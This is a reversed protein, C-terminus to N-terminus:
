QPKEERLYHVFLRVQEPEELMEALMNMGRGSARRGFLPQLIYVVQAGLVTLPGAAELLSAVFGDLGWRHLKQAWGDWMQHDFNM